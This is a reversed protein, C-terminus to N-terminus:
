QGVRHAVQFNATAEVLLGAEDIARKVGPCMEWGYDDFVMVGGANMRPLFWDIAAKTSKHFDVDVHVFAFRMAGCAAASAPFVGPVLRINVLDAVNHLVEDLDVDSFDGVRHVEDPSWASGPLGSFTDFGIVTRHPCEVAIARLTAGHYVGCEAAFGPVDRVQALCTLLSALKDETILSIM